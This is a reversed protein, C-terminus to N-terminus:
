QQRKETIDITEIVASVERTAIMATNSPPFPAAHPSFFGACPLFFEAHPINNEACDACNYL